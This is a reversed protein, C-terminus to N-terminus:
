VCVCPLREVSYDVRRDRRSGAAATAGAKWICPLLLAGEESVGSQRDTRRSRGRKM